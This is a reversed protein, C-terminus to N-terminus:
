TVSAVPLVRGAASPTPLDARPRLNRSAWTVADCAYLTPATTQTWAFAM